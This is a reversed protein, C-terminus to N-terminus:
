PYPTGKDTRLYTRTSTLLPHWNGQLYFHNHATRHIPEPFQTMQLLLTNQTLVSVREPGLPFVPELHVQCWNAEELHAVHINQKSSIVQGFRVRFLGWRQGVGPAQEYSTRLAGEIGSSVCQFLVSSSETGAEGGTLSKQIREGM